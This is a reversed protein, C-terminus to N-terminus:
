KELILSKGQLDIGPIIHKSAIALFGETSANRSM